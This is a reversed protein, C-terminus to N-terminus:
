RKIDNKFSSSQVWEVFADRPILIRRRGAIIKPFDRRNVLTKMTNYCVGLMEAAETISIALKTSQANQQIPITSKM